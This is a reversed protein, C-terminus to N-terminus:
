LLCNERFSFADSFSVIVHDVLPIGIIKGAEAISETLQIDARSPSTRQSPHNHAVIIRSAHNKLAANYIVQNDIQVGDSSGRFLEEYGKVRNGADLYLVM